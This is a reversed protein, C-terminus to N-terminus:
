CGLGGSGDAGGFGGAGGDGGAGGFDGRRAVGAAAAGSAVPVSSPDPNKDVAATCCAGAQAILMSTWTTTSSLM